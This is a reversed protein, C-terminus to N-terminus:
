TGIMIKEGGWWHCYCKLIPFMQSLETTWLCRSFCLSHSKAMNLTWSTEHSRFSIWSNRCTLLHYLALWCPNSAQTDCTRTLFSVKQFASKQRTFFSPLLPITASKEITCYVGAYFPESDMNLTEGLFMIHQLLVICIYSHTQPLYMYGPLIILNFLGSWKKAFKM